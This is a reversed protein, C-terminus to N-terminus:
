DHFVGRLLQKLEKKPDKKVRLKSVPKVQPKSETKKLEPLLGVIMKKADPSYFTEVKNLEEVPTYNYLASIEKLIKRMEPSGQLPYNKKAEFAQEFNYDMGNANIEGAFANLYAILSSEINFHVNRYRKLKPKIKVPETESTRDKEEGPARESKPGLLAGSVGGYIGAGVLGMLFAALLKYIMGIIGGRQGRLVRRFKSRRRGFILAEKTLPAYDSSTAILGGIPALMKDGLSEAAASIDTEGIKPPNNPDGFGFFKDLWGGIWTGPGIGNTEAVMWLIRLVWNTKFLFPAATSFVTEFPKEMLEKSGVTEVAGKIADRVISEISAEKIIDRKSIAITRM